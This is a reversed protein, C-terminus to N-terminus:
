HYTSMISLTHLDVPHLEQIRLELDDIADDLGNILDRVSDTSRLKQLIEQLVPAADTKNAKIRRQMLALAEEINLRQKDIVSVIEDLELVVENLNYAAAYVSTAHHYDAESCFVSTKKFQYIVSVLFIISFIVVWKKQKM